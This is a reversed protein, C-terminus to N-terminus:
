EQCRPQLIAQLISGSLPSKRTWNRGRQRSTDADKRKAKAAPFPQRPHNAHVLDALYAAGIKLLMSRDLLDNSRQRYRTRRHALDHTTVLGLELVLASNLGRGLEACPDLNQRIDQLLFGLQRLSVASRRLPQELLQAPASIVASVVAHMPEDLSPAILVDPNRHMGIHRHAERRSFGVLKVPAVLRDRKRAQRERDLRRM